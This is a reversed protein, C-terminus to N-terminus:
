RSGERLSALAQLSEQYDELAKLEVPLLFRLRESFALMLPALTRAATEVRMLAAHENVATVLLRANAWAEVPLISGCSDEAQIVDCVSYGTECRIIRDDTNPVVYWPLASHAKRATVGGATGNVLEIFRAEHRERHRDAEVETEFGGAPTPMEREIQARLADNQGDTEKNLTM